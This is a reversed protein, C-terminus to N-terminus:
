ERRNMAYALLEVPSTNVNYTIDLADADYFVNDTLAYQDAFITESSFATRGPKGSSHHKNSQKDYGTAASLLLSRYQAFTLM